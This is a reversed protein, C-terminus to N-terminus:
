DKWLFPFLIIALVVIMVDLAALLVIMGGLGGQVESFAITSVKNLLLL